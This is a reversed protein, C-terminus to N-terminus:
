RRGAAEDSKMSEELISLDSESWNQKKCLDYFEKTLLATGAGATQQGYSFFAYVLSTKEEATLVPGKAVFDMISLSLPRLSRQQNGAQKKYVAVVESYKKQGALARALDLQIRVEQQDGIESGHDKVLTLVQEADAYNNRALYIEGLKYRVASLELELEFKRNEKIQASTTSNLDFQRTGAPSAQMKKTRTDIVFFALREAVDSRGNKMAVDMIKFLFDTNPYELRELRKVESEVISTMLKYQGVETAYYARHWAIPSADSLLPAHVALAAEMIKYSKAGEGNYSYALALNDLYKLIRGEREIATGEPVLSIQCILDDIHAASAHLLDWYKKGKSKDAPFLNFLEGCIYLRTNALEGSDTYPILQELLREAERTRGNRAYAKALQLLRSIREQSHKSEKSESDLLEGVIKASVESNGSTIAAYAKAASQWDTTFKLKDQGDLRYVNGQGNLKAELKNAHVSASRSESLDGKEKAYDAYAFLVTITLDKPSGPWGQARLNSYIKDAIGTRGTLHYYQAAQLVGLLGDIKLLSLPQKSLALAKVEALRALDFMGRDDCYIVVLPLTWGSEFLDEPNVSYPFNLLYDRVLAGNYLGEDSELPTRIRERVDQCPNQPDAFQEWSEKMQTFRPLAALGPLQTSLVFYLAAFAVLGRRVPPRSKM